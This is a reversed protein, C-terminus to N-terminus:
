PKWIHVFHMSRALSGSRALEEDEVHLISNHQLGLLRLKDTRPFLQGSVSLPFRIWHGFAAAFV